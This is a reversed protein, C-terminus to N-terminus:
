SSSTGAKARLEDRLQDSFSKNGSNRNGGAGADVPPPVEAKQEKFMAPYLTKLDEMQREADVLNGKDDGYQNVDLLRHLLDPATAGAKRAAEAVSYRFNTQRLEARLAEADQSSEATNGGSTNAAGSNGSSGGQRLRERYKFNDAELDGIKKQAADWEAKTLTFAEGNSNGGSGQGEPNGGNGAGQVPVGDTM